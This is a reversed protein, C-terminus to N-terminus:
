LTGNLIAEGFMRKKLKSSFRKVMSEKKYKWSNPLITKIDYERGDVKSIFKMKGADRAKEAEVRLDRYVTASMETVVSEGLGDSVYNSVAETENDDKFLEPFAYWKLARLANETMQRQWAMHFKSWKFGNTKLKQRIEASPKGPFKIQLRNAERNEIVTMEPDDFEYLVRTGDNDFEDSVEERQAVREQEAALQKRTNNLLQNTNSLPWGSFGPKEYSERPIVANVAARASIGPILRQVEKIIDAVEQETMGTLRNERYAAAKDKTWKIKRLFKNVAKMAEASAELEKIKQEYREIADSSGQRIPQQSPLKQIEKMQKAVWDILEGTRKHETNLKKQNSRTPFNGAGTIMSSMTRSKAALSAKWRSTLGKRFNECMLEITAQDEEAAKLRREAHIKYEYLTNLYDTRQQVGRTEPSYSTGSHAREAELQSIDYSAGAFPADLTGGNLKNMAEKLRDWADRSAYQPRDPDEESKEPEEAPPFQSAVYEKYRKSVDTRDAPELENFAKFNNRIADVQSNAYISLKAQIDDQDLIGRETLKARMEDIREEFYEVLDNFVTDASTAGGPVEQEFADNSDISQVIEALVALAKKASPEQGSVWFFPKGEDAGYTRLMKKLQQNPLRDWDHNVMIIYPRADFETAMRTTVVVHKTSWNAGVFREQEGNVYAWISGGNKTIAQYIRDIYPQAKAIQDVIFNVSEPEQSEDDTLSDNEANIIEEAEVEVVDTNNKRLAELYETLKGVSQPTSPILKPNQPNVQVSPSITEKNLDIVRLTTRPDNTKIDIANREIVVAELTSLEQVYSTGFTDLIFQKGVYKELMRAIKIMVESPNQINNLSDREYEMPVAQKLSVGQGEAMKIIREPKLELLNKGLVTVDIKALDQDPDHANKELWGNWLAIRQQRNNLADYVGNTENYKNVMLVSLHVLEKTVDVTQKPAAIPAATEPTDDPLAHADTAGTWYIRYNRFINGRSFNRAPTKYGAAKLISGYEFSDNQTNVIFSHVSHGTLVKVYKRGKEYRLGERFDRMMKNEWDPDKGARNFSNVYDDNIADLYKELAEELSMSTSAPEAAKPVLPVPKDFKKFVQKPPEYAPEPEPAPEESLMEADVIGQADSRSIGEAELAAVREEYDEPEVNAGMFKEFEKRDDSDPDDDVEEEEPEPENVGVVRPIRLELGTFEMFINALSDGYVDTMRKLVKYKLGRASGFEIDYLDKGNLRIRIRNAKSSNKGIQFQLLDGDRVFNKAGTMTVLRAQGGLADLIGTAIEQSRETEVGQMPSSDSYNPEPEESFAADVPPAVGSDAYKLIEDMIQDGSFESNRANTQALWYLMEDRNDEIKEQDGEARAKLLANWTRIDAMKLRKTLYEIDVDGMYNPMADISKDILEDMQKETESAAAKAAEVEKGKQASLQTLRLERFALAQPASQDFAKALDEISQAKEVAALSNLLYYARNSLQDIDEYGDPKHGMSQHQNFYEQARAKTEDDGFEKIMDLRNSSHFNRDENREFEKLLKQYHNDAM